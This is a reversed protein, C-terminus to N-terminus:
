MEEVMPRLFFPQINHHVINDSWTVNIWFPLAHLMSCAVVKDISSYVAFSNHM